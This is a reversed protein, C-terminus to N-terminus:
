LAPIANYAVIAIDDALNRFFGISFLSIM